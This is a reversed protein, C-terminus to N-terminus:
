KPSAQRSPITVPSGVCVVAQQALVTSHAEQVEGQQAADVGVV